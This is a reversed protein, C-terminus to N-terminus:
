QNRNYAFDMLYDGVVPRCNVVRPEFSSHQAAQIAYADLDSDGSSQFIQASIPRGDTGITVKVKAIKETHLAYRMWTSTPVNPSVAHTVTADHNCDYDNSQFSVSIAFTSGVSKCGATGPAYTSAQASAIAAADLDASGASRAIKANLVGGKDDITVAVLASAAGQLAKYRAPPLKPPVLHVLAPDHNCPDSSAAPVPAPTASQLTMALLLISILM